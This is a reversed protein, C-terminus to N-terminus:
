AWLLYHNLWQGDTIRFKEIDFGEKLPDIYKKDKEFKYNNIMYHFVKADRKKLAKNSNRITLHNRLVRHLPIFFKKTFNQKYTLPHQDDLRNVKSSEYVRHYMFWLYHALKYILTSETQHAIIIIEKRPQIIDGHLTELMYLQSGLVRALAGLVLLYYQPYNQYENFTIIRERIPVAIFTQSSFLTPLKDVLRVFKEPIDIIDASNPEDLLRLMNCLGVVITKEEM